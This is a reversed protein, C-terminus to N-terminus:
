AALGLERAHRVHRHFNLKRDYELPDKPKVLAGPPVNLWDVLRTLMFRMASGRCLIPLAEVEEPALPRVSLYGALLARGKTLNFSGDAEFCWANLCIAVDYAFADTCAFYFDILGSVEAGIFFVNDTFLDAHIIGSPLGSPWEARLAELERRTREALGPSVTDAEARAQAFLPPWGDISLANRRTRGFDRGALHLRALAAGLAGCHQATPRRVAIGELFTCIAAPRGALRGLAEGKRNSVPLPCNLGKGALHQMLDIFFPLDEERVRKEYLTLIYSGATTHLFYNTNEVGEAIGKYSLVTGIDYTALFAALEEDQVDTYVAM